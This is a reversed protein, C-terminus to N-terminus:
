RGGYPPYDASTPFCNLLAPDEALLRRWYRRYHRFSMFDQDNGYVTQGDYQWRVLSWWNLIDSNIPWKLWNLSQGEAHLERGLEDVADIVQTLVRGDRGREARRTGGLVRAKIGDRIYFGTTVTETTGDIPDEDFSLATQPDYLHWASDSSAFVYPWGARLPDAVDAHRPGWGRDRLAGCDIEVREGDIELDGTFWGSQEYHGVSFDGDKKVWNKIGPDEDGSQALKMYHPEAMATWTLDFKVGYRDYRFRYEQQPAIMSCSLSNSLEFNFMEAGDPIALHQDWGYYLCNYVDEGSHDWMAPGAVVLNMNPRWYFYIFGSINREPVNFGLLSNESWYPDGSRPHFQEDSIDIADTWGV